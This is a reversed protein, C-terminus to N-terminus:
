VNSGCFKSTACIPWTMDNQQLMRRMAPRAAVLEALRALRSFRAYADPCCDQMTSLMFAFIDAASFREGLMFPGTSNLHQDVRGWIEAVELRAKDAVGSAGNPDTTYLDSHYYRRMAPQLTNTLHTMWQYYHGRATEKPGPALKAAPHRDALYMTIAASEFMVQKGEIVLTPVKGNPNLRLYDPDNQKGQSLDIMKLEYKEGIEELAGHPAMSVSGPSAYLTYM